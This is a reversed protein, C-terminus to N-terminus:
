PYKGIAWDSNGGEGFAQRVTPHRREDSPSTLGRSPDSTDLREIAQDSAEPSVHSLRIRVLQHGRGLLTPAMVSLQIFGTPLLVDHM